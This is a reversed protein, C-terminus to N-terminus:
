RKVAQFVKLGVYLGGGIVVWRALSTSKEAADGVSDVADDILYLAALGAGILLYPM